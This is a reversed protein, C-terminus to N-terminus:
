ALLKNVQVNSFNLISAEIQCKNKAKILRDNPQPSFPDFCLIGVAYWSVVTRRSAIDAPPSLTSMRRSPPSKIPTYRFRRRGTIWRRCPFTSHTRLTPKSNQSDATWTDEENAEQSDNSLERGKYVAFFYKENKKLSFVLSINYTAYCQWM